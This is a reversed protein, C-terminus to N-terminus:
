CGSSWLVEGRDVLLLRTGPGPCGLGPPPMSPMSRGILQVLQTSSKHSFEQPVVTAKYVDSFGVSVRNDQSWMGFIHCCIILMTKVWVWFHWFADSYLIDHKTSMHINIEKCVIQIEHRSEEGDRGAEHWLAQSQLCLWQYGRARPQPLFSIPCRCCCWRLNDM